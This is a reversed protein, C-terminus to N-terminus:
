ETKEPLYGVDSAVRFGFTDYTYFTLVVTRRFLSDHPTSNYHGGRVVRKSPEGAIARGHRPLCLDERGDTRDYPYPFGQSSCHEQVNGSMNYLGYPNPPYTSGVAIPGVAEVAGPKSSHCDGTQERNSHSQQLGGRAACEWEDERPLRFKHGTKKSLWACYADADRHSVHSVPHKPKEVTGDEKWGAAEKWNTFGTKSFVYHLPLEEATSRYGTDKVFADFEANTTEYKALYFAEVHVEHAPYEKAFREGINGMLFTQAPVPMLAPLDLGTAQEYLNALDAVGVHEREHADMNKNAGKDGIPNKQVECALPLVSFCALFGLRFGFTRLMRLM